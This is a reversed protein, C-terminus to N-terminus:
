DHSVFRLRDGAKLLSPQPRDIDFLAPHREDMAYRGIIQWGGPSHLPYIGTQMGGIAVSGPQVDLRPSSKRPTAILPNMGQLYPFGPQFGIFYVIYEAATHAAIVQERTLGNHEAVIDLDPGYEGGYNVPIEHYQTDDPQATHADSDCVARWHNAVVTHWHQYAASCALPNFVLTLNYMGAVINLLDTDDRCHNRLSDALLWIRQQSLHEPQQSADIVLANEGLPYIRAAEIYGAGASSIDEIDLPM